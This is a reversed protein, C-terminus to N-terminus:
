THESSAKIQFSYRIDNQRYNKQHELIFLDSQLHM